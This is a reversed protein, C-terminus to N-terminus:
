PTHPHNDPQPDRVGPVAANHAQAVPCNLAM